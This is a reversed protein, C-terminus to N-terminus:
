ACAEGSIITSINHNEYLYSCYVHESGRSINSSFNNSKQGKISLGEKLGM